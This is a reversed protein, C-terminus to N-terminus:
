PQLVDYLSKSDAVVIVANMSQKKQKELPQPTKRNSFGQRSYREANAYKKWEGCGEAESM